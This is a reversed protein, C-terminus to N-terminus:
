SENGSTPSDGTEGECPPPGPNSDRLAWAGGQGHDQEPLASTRSSHDELGPEGTERYRQWWKHATQRSIRMSEAASAV